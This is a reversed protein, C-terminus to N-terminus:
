WGVIMRYAGTVFFATSAFAAVIVMCAILVIVFWIGIAALWDKLQKLMLTGKVAKSESVLKFALCEKCTSCPSGWERM